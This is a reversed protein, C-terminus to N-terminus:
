KVERYQVLDIVISILNAAIVHMAITGMVFGEKYLSEWLVSRKLFYIPILGLLIPVDVFWILKSYVSLDRVTERLKEKYENYKARLDASVKAEDIVEIKSCHVFARAAFFDNVLMYGLYGFGTFWSVTNLLGKHTGWIVLSIMIVFLFLFMVLTLWFVVLLSRNFRTVRLEANDDKTYGSLSGRQWGSKANLLILSFFSIINAAMLWAASTLVAQKDIPNVAGTWARNWSFWARIPWSDVYTPAATALVIFVLNIIIVIWGYITQPKSFVTAYVKTEPVSGKGALLETQVSM